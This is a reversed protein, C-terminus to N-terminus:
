PKHATESFYQNEISQWTENQNKRILQGLQPNINMIEEAM